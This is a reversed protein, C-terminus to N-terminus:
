GNKRFLKILEVRNRVHLKHYISSLHKKVTIEAIYLNEAIERNQLGEMALNIIDFERQTIVGKNGKDIPTKGSHLQNIVMPRDVFVSGTSKSEPLPTVSRYVPTSIDRSVAIYGAVKQAIILSSFLTDLMKNKTDSISITHKIRFYVNDPKREATINSVLKHTHSGFVTEFPKNEFYDNGKNLVHSVAPSVYTITMDNDFVWIIDKHTSLFNPTPSIVSSGNKHDSSDLGNQPRSYAADSCAQKFLVNKVAENLSYVSHNERMWGDGWFSSLVRESFYCSSHMQKLLEVHSYALYDFCYACVGSAPQTSYFSNLQEELNLFQNESLLLPVTEGFDFIVSLKQLGENSLEHTKSHLLEILDNCTIRGNKIYDEIQLIVMRSSYVYESLALYEIFYELMTTSGADVFIVTKEGRLISNVAYSTIRNFRELKTKYVFLLHNHIGTEFACEM